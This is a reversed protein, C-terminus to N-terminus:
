LLNLNKGKKALIAVHFAQEALNGLVLQIVFLDLPRGHCAHRLSQSCSVRPDRGYQSTTIVLAISCHLPSGKTESQQLKGAHCVNM